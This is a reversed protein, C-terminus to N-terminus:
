FLFYMFFLVYDKVINLYLYEVVFLISFNVDDIYKNGYWIFMKIGDRM